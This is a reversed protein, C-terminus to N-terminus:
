ARRRGSHPAADAQGGARGAEMRGVLRLLKSGNVADGGLPGWVDARNPYTFGAPMIGAVTRRRGDLTVAQGVVDGAGGFVRQWAAYSIVVAGAPTDDERTTWRGAFPPVGLVGFFDGAVILSTLQQPEGHGTLTATNPTMATLSELTRSGDRLAEFKALSVSATAVASHTDHVYILRDPEKFPLPKLLLAYVVSFIATNAGIGLAITV